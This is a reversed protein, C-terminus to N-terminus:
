VIKAPWWAFQSLAVQTRTLRWSEHMELGRSACEEAACRRELWDQVGPEDMELELRNRRLERVAEDTIPHTSV